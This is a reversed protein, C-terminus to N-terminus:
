LIEDIEQEMVIDFGDVKLGNKTLTDQVINYKGPLTTDLQKSNVLNIEFTRDDIDFDKIPGNTREIIGEKDLGPMHSLLDTYVNKTGEMYEIKANYGGISLVWLQSRKIKCQPISIM